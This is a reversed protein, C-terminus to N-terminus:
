WGFIEFIRRSMYVNKSQREWEPTGNVYDPYELEVDILIDDIVFMPIGKNRTYKISYRLLGEENDIVSDMKM